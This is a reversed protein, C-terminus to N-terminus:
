STVDFEFGLSSNFVTDSSKRLDFLFLSGSSTKIHDRL